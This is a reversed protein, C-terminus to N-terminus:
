KSPLAQGDEPHEAMTGPSPVPDNTDDDQVKHMGSAPPVPLADDASTPEIRLPEPQYNPDNLPRSAPAAPESLNPKFGHNILARVEDISLPRYPIEGLKQLDGDIQAGPKARQHMIDAEPGTFDKNADPSAFTAYTKADIPATRNQESSGIPAFASDAHNFDAPADKTAYAQNFGAAAKTGDYSATHYTSKSGLNYVSSPGTDGYVKTPFTKQNGLDASKDVGGLNGSNFTKHSEPNTESFVKQHDLPDDGINGAHRLPDLQDKVFIPVRNGGGTDQYVVKSGPPPTPAPPDDARVLIGTALLVVCSLCILLTIRRSV